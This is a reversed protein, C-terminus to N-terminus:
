GVFSYAKQAEIKAAFVTICSRVSNFSSQLFYNHPHPKLVPHSSQQQGVWFFLYESKQGVHM